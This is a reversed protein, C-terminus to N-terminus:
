KPPSLLSRRLTLRPAINAHYHVLLDPVDCLSATPEPAYSGSAGTCVATGEGQKSACTFLLDPRSDVRHGPTCIDIFVHTGGCFPCARTDTDSM